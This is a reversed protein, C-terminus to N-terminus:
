NYVIMQKETEDTIDIVLDLDNLPPLYTQDYIVYESFFDLYPYLDM